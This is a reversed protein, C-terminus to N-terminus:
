QEWDNEYPFNDVAKFHPYCCFYMLRGTKLGSEYVHFLFNGYFYVMIKLIGNNIKNLVLQNNNVKIGGDYKACFCFFVLLPYYAKRSFVLFLFYYSLNEAAVFFSGYHIENSSVLYVPFTIHLLVGSVSFRKFGAIQSHKERRKGVWKAQGWGIIKVDYNKRIRKKEEAGTKVLAVQM